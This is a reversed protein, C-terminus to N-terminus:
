GIVQFTAMTPDAAYAIRLGGAAAIALTEMTASTILEGPVLVPIGPPYPAVIEASVRGVAAAADVTRHAAFFADRPTMVAAPVSPSWLGPADSRGTPPRPARPCRAAVAILRDVLGTVSVDDDLMTVIPVLTDRDALEVPMGAAILGAELDLGSLDSGRLCLVLKGPDFRRAPFDAPGPIAVGALEPAARLRARAGAVLDVLSQLLEAGLPASLLAVSTDLSALITGSPSTTASAEFARELRDPDVLEGRAAILSAQSYAALTKHASIVMVDAGAALAHDPYAAHFGLHAGWAQDVVVPVGRAHAIDVLAPLDSSAGLYGPEVLFVARAEPCADLAAALAHAPVGMPIPQRSDVAPALWVPRLGALVMGSLTSRHASRTVLVTDDPRAVALAAVQNAHTSGGTSFRCWSAGWLGAARREAAAVLATASRVPGLGGFLPVDGALLRGLLPSLGGGRRKHGPITFPTPGADVFATWADLLPVDHPWGEERVRDDHGLVTLTPTRSARLSRRWGM